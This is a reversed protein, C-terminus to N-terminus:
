PTEETLLDTHRRCLGHDGSPHRNCDAFDRHRDSWVTAWCGPTSIGPEQTLPAFAATGMRAVLALDGSVHRHPTPAPQHQRYRRFRM